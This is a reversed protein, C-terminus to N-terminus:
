DCSNLKLTTMLQVHCWACDGPLVVHAAHQLFWMYACQQKLFTLRGHLVAGMRGWKKQVLLTLGAVVAVTSSCGRGGRTVHVVLKGPGKRGHQETGSVGTAVVAAPVIHPIAAQHSGAPYM